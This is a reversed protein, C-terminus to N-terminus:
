FYRHYITPTPVPNCVPEQRTYNFSDSNIDITKGTIKDAWGAYYRLTAIALGLDGEAMTISKGNNLSEVAILLQLNRELIDALKGMLIGRQQPTTTKWEGDFAKRAATVAIDVDKETAEFVSCIVEETSPNIVEFTKKDVSEVFENNIFRHIEDTDHESLYFLLTNVCLGTPQEYPGTLPTQLTTVVGM